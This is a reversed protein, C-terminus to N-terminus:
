SVQRCVDHVPSVVVVFLCLLSQIQCHVEPLNECKRSVLFYYEEAESGSKLQHQFM